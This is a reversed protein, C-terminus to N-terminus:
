EGQKKSKLMIEKVTRSIEERLRADRDISSSARDSGSRKKPNHKAINISKM